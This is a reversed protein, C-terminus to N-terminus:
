RHARYQTDRELPVLGARRIAQRVVNASLARKGNIWAPHITDDAYMLGGIDNAGAGLTRIANPFGLQMWNAQINPIWQSFFIRSIAYVKLISEDSVMKHHGNRHSLPSGDPIFPTPIFETFGGTEKQINRLIELHECLYIEDEVHGFMLTATTRIGLRHAAKVIEIWDTTRLKDPCIKKRIKDNLVEAGTGPMSDLGAEQLQQLVTAVPLRWRKGMYYIEAPSFAHLHLDPRKEKIAQVIDRYYAFPLDPNLGGQLEVVTADPSAKIERLIRDADLVYAGRQGKRRWFPCFSCEARCINTYHITRSNIFTVVGHHLRNNLEKAVHLLEPLIGNGEQMLILAEIPSIEDRELATSLIVRPDMEVGVGDTSHDYPV